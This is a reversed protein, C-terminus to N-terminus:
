INLINIRKSPIHSIKSTMTSHFYLLNIKYTKDVLTRIVGVKYSFPTFSFFNTLLRTFAKKKYTLTKLCSPDNNDICVDLFALIENTEKEMTFKISPHQSNVFNFFLKAENETNFVCFTGDVYRRYFPVSLNQYNKLWMNEHYGLFLNALVPALPSGMAVGDMEDFAKGNFLFYTQSTAIAFM